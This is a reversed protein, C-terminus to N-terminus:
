KDQVAARFRRTQMVALAILLNLDFAGWNMVFMYARVDHVEIMHRGRPRSEAAMAAVVV